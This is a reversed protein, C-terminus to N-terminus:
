EPLVLDRLLIGGNAHPNASMRRDGKPPLDRLEAVLTENKDFLEQPRYSRLWKELLKMHAPNKEMEAFPVQHSRWSGEAPKGDVIKPGTWGKPTRLVIMPWRPRETVGRQRAATQIRRIEAIVTDLTGAMLQHMSEPKDGEVFHPEYGYGRLLAELEEHPIRALITPNNIKYGNLHLIPLVAGDRVPDLFKNSHWSAALPGTEAEGDGVVCGVILKPKD